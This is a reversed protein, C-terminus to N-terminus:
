ETMNQAFNQKSALDHWGIDQRMVSQFLKMRMRTVQRLAVINFIDVSFIGSILMVVSALTLLIGYSISDYYLEENNTEVSANTSFNFLKLQLKSSVSM